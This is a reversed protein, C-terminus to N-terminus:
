TATQDLYLVEAKRNILVGSYQGYAPQGWNIKNQTDAELMTFDVPISMALTDPNNRYLVYRNKNVGRSANNAAQAYALPLIKFSPNGTMRAFMQQLYELKSINVFGGTGTYPVGLGLYDATPIVFTDPLVTSNSNSFYAALVGSVFTTFQAYSMASLSLNVLTTNITVDTDTLLGAVTTRSPHGLFATEQIGLDWNKKLSELKASVVDWNNAQAAKMIEFITWFAQKAWTIVPMRIPAIAADVGAVRGTSSQTDIDGDYFGGGTMFTLNQVIEDAWGGEGVDVSVFSAIDVEYFKQKVVKSRIYSLTEITYQFGESNPDINGNANLLARGGIHSPIGPMKANFLERGGVSKFTQKKV